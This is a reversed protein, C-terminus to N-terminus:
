WLLLSSEIWFNIWFITLLNAFSDLTLSKMLDMGFM